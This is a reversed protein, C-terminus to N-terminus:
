QGSEWLSRYQEGNLARRLEARELSSLEEYARACSELVHSQGEEQFSREIHEWIGLRRLSAVYKPWPIVAITQPVPLGPRLKRLSKFRDEVSSAMPVVKVMPGDLADRRRDVLLTKGILPFYMSVVDATDLSKFIEGIDVRFDSDM